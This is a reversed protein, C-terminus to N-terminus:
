GKRLAGQSLQVGLGRSRSVGQRVKGTAVVLEGNGLTQSERENRLNWMCIPAASPSFLTSTQRFILLFVMLDVLEVIPYKHLSFVSRLQPPFYVGGQTSQLMIQLLRSVAAAGSKKLQQNEDRTQRRPSAPQNSSSQLIAKM